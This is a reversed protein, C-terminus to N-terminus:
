CYRAEKAIDRVILVYSVGSARHEIDRSLHRAICRRPGGARAIEL